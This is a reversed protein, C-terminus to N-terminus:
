ELTRALAHQCATAATPPTCAQRPQFEDARILIRQAHVRAHQGHADLAGTGVDGSLEPPCAPSITKQVCRVRRFEQLPPQRVIICLVTPHQRHVNAVFPNHVRQPDIQASLKHHANKYYIHRKQVSLRVHREPTFTGVPMRSQRM